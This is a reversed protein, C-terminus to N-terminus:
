LGDHCQRQGAAVAQDAHLHNPTAISVIDVDPSTLLDDFSTTIRAEPLALDYKALNARTRERDRGCLWTIATRPNHQFAAIHQSACWGIGCIAVGLKRDGSGDVIANVDM